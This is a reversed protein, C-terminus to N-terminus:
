KRTSNFTGDRNSIACNRPTAVTSRIAMFTMRSPWRRLTLQWQDFLEAKWLRCTECLEACSSKIHQGVKCFIIGCDRCVHVAISISVRRDQCVGLSFNLTSAAYIFHDAVWLSQGSLRNDYIEKFTDVSWATGHM